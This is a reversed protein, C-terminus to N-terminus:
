DGGLLPKLRGRNQKVANLLGAPLSGSGAKQQLARYAQVIRQGDQKWSKADYGYPYLVSEHQKVFPLYTDIAKEPVKVTDSKLAGGSREVVKATAVAWANVDASSLPAALASVAYFLGLLMWLPRSLIM